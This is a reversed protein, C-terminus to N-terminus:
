EIGLIGFLFEIWKFFIPLVTFFMFVAFLPLGVFLLILYGVIKLLCVGLGDEDKYEKEKIEDEIRGM